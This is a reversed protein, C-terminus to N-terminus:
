RAYSSLNGLISATYAMAKNLTWPMTVIAAVLIAALRPVSNFASDQISTVIQVLSILIGALFGAILTPASLWFALMLADRMIKVVSDANM